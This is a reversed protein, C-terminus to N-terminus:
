PSEAFHRGFENPTVLKQIKAYERRAAHVIHKENVVGGDAAALFAAGLAINKINGGAIEMGALFDFDLADVPTERPFAGRWIRARSARDPFPFDIVFRLRRLFARDLATKRNTSLIALGRYDEMRQLLYNVQINAYLDHSDKVDTRKGFLADAEDFFLIAGSQEAADFVRRLNKESEGIYKSVVGALDIRYLELGLEGAIIEAAMTKGTGSPGAFLTTIGRGRTLRSEFGWRRYVRARQAVQAVVERLQQTADSGLVLDDWRQRTTIRQALDDVRWSVQQQCTDWLTGAGDRSAAAAARAIMEPSFDFQEVLPDLPQHPAPKLGGDIRPSFGAGCELAQQWLQRQSERGPREVRAITLVRAGHWADRTDVIIPADLLEVIDQLATENNVDPAEREPAQVLYTLNLLRSERALARFLSTREPGLPPLRRPDLRQLTRGANEAIAHALTEKGSHPSGTLNIARENALSAALAAHATDLPGREVPRLVEAAAEDLRNVGHLFDAVRPDLRLPRLSQPTGPQPPPEVHVLAWRRLPATAAFAARDGGFLSVALDPSAYKRAIDDHAYAFLLEFGADVEPAFTLLIVDREFPTLAFAAALADLAWPKRAREVEELEALTAPDDAIATRERLLRDAQADGIVPGRLDDDAADRSWDRRLRAVLLRFLLRLRRLDLDTM